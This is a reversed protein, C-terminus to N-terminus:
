TDPETEWITISSAAVGGLKRLESSGNLSITNASHGGIRVRFTLETEVGAALVHRLTMIEQDNGATIEQAVAALANATVGVFLGMTVINLASSALYVVVEIILRNAADVPTITRTLYEDGETIQPITDDNPMLTTGTQLAGTETVVIQKTMAVQHQSATVGTLEGHSLSTIPIPISKLVM